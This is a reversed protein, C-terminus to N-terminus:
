QERKTLEPIGLVKKMLKAFGANSGGSYSVVHKTTILRPITKAKIYHQVNVGNSIWEKIQPDQLAKDFAAKGVLEEAKKRAEKLSPPHSGEMMFNHFQEFKEQKAINVAMGFKALTCANKFGMPTKKINTNCDTNMPTPLYVVCVDVNYTERFQHMRTHLKRCSPCCYDSLELAVYKAERNGLVPMKYLDFTLQNNLLHVTRSNQETKGFLISGNSDEPTAYEINEALEAAHIDPVIGIHFGIMFLLIATATSGVLLRSHRHRQWIPIHLIAFLYAISGFLHSTLCFICFHKIVAGQLFILWAIFGLGVISEIAMLYWVMIYGKRLQPISIFITGAMLALYGGIGLVSVPLSGWHEWRGALVEHCGGNGCGYVVQHSKVAVLIYVSIAFAILAFVFIIFQPKIRKFM